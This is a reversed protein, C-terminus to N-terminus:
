QENETTELALQMLDEVEAIVEEEAPQAATNPAPAESETPPAAEWIVALAMLALCPVVARWLGQSWALLTGAVPEESIRARIRNEFAYPVRGSPKVKSSAELVRNLMKEESDM